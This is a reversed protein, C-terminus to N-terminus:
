SVIDNQMYEKTRDFLNTVEEKIMIGSQEVKKIIKAASENVVMKLPENDEIKSIINRQANSFSKKLEGSLSSTESQLASLKNEVYKVETVINNKVKNLKADINSKKNKLEKIERLEDHITSSEKIVQIKIGELKAEQLSFLDTLQELSLQNRNSILIEEEL